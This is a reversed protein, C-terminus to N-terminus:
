QKMMYAVLSDVVKQRLGQKYVQDIHEELRKFNEVKKRLLTKYKELSQMVKTKRTRALFQSAKRVNIRSKNKRLCYQKLEQFCKEYQAIARQQQFKHDKSLALLMFTKNREFKRSKFQLYELFVRQNHSAHVGSLKQHIIAIRVRRQKWQRFVKLKFRRCRQHVQLALKVKLVSDKRVYKKWRNM